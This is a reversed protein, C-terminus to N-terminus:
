EDDDEDLDDDADEDASDDDDDDDDSAEDSSDEDAGVEEADGDEDDGGASGGGEGKKGKDQGEAYTKAEARLLRRLAKWAALKVVDDPDSNHITELTTLAEAGGLRGLAAIAAFRAPDSGPATALATLEARRNGAIAVPLAWWRTAPEAILERAVEPFAAWALPAITTADARSGIGRVLAAANPLAAVARTTIARVERDGDGIAVSLARLGDSSRAEGLSSAAERRVPTPAKDDRLAGLAAAEVAVAGQAQVRRAAWLAAQWAEAELARRESGGRVNTRWGAESKAVAIVVADALPRARDGGAGTIWAAEARPAPDDGRLAADLEARPLEGRRILGERLMRRVEASKVTGLRAVLTAPDGATSLYTAAPRSIEDHPVGLAHLSVRTRDGGLVKGLATVAAQRVTYDDDALLEALV